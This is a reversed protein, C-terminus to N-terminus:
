PKALLADRREIIRLRLAKVNEGPVYEIGYTQALKILARLEFWAQGHSDWWAAFAGGFLACFMFLVFSWEVFEKMTGRLLM